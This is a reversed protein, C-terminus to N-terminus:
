IKLDQWNTPLVQSSREPWIKIGGLKEIQFTKPVFPNIERLREYYYKTAEVSEKEQSKGRGILRALFLGLTFNFEHGSLGFVAADLDIRVKKHRENIFLYNSSLKDSLMIVDVMGQITPDLTNYVEMIPCSHFFIPYLIEHETVNCNQRLFIGSALGHLQASSNFYDGLGYEELTNINLRVYRNNDQPVLTGNWMVSRGKDFGREKFLDHACAIFRLLEDSYPNGLRHNITQAYLKVLQIHHLHYQFTSSDGHIAKNLGMIDISYM